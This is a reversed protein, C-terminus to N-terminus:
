DISSIAPIKLIHQASRESAYTNLNRAKALIHLASKILSVISFMPTGPKHTPQLAQTPSYPIRDMEDM